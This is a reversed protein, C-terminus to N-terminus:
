TQLSYFIFLVNFYDINERLNLYIFLFSNSTYYTKQHAMGQSESKVKNYAVVLAPVGKLRIFLIKITIKLFLPNKNYVKRNVLLQPLWLRFSFLRFNALL